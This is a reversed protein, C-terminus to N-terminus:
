FSSKYSSTAIVLLLGIASVLGFSCANYWYRGTDLMFYQLILCFTCAVNWLQLKQWILLVGTM